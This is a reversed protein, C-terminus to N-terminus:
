RAVATTGQAELARLKAAHQRDAAASAEDQLADHVDARLELLSQLLYAARGKLSSAEQLAESLLGAAEQYNNERMARMAYM